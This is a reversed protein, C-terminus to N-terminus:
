ARKRINYERQKLSLILNKLNHFCLYSGFVQFLTIIPVLGVGYFKTIIENITDNKWIFESFWGIGFAYVLSIGFLIFMTLLSFLCSSHCKRIKFIILLSTLLFNLISLLILIPNIYSYIKFIGSAVTNGYTLEKAKHNNAPEGLPLHNMNTLFTAIECSNPDANDGLNGGPVYGELFICNKYEKAITDKIRIIEELSRGGASSILQFKNEKILLKNDFASKLEINVQKFLDSVQKESQWLNSDVLATRLVWTLFDGSIPNQRIDGSCWPSNFIKEKLIPHNSLTKSAEFAKDIADYPAWIFATRNDSHIKYINNIFEGLEGEAKTNTEYVGFYIYNISKYVNSTIIFIILPLCLTIITKTLLYRNRTHKKLVIGISILISFVLCCLLWIGDEKIYYTFSFILGLLINTSLTKKATINKNVTLNLIMNLMLAFFILVFPAIISNRYLRTGIWSDFASPTFLVFIYIFTLFAKNKTVNLFIKVVLAAAIIWIISLVMTYSLGSWHVIKLFLPYSMTKMLSLVNPDKFHSSLSAYTILLRDDYGQSSPYWASLLNSLIVRFITIITILIFNPNKANRCFHTKM